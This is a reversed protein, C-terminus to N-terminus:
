FGIVLSVLIIFDTGGRPAAVTGLPPGGPSEFLHLRELSPRSDYLTQLSTRFALRESLPFAVSGTVDLRFDDTNRLNWTSASVVALDATRYRTEGRADIRFGLSAAGVGPDIVEDNQHVASLGAGLEFPRRGGNEAEGWTTGVGVTLDLRSRVGAPADREWGAAAFFALEANRNERSPETIRARLHSRNVSTQRTVLREVDFVDPNGIAQRTVTDTSTRLLGGELAVRLQRMSRSARASLGLSGSGANGYSGALNLNAEGAWRDSRAPSEEPTEAWVPLGAALLIPTLLAPLIRRKDRIRM